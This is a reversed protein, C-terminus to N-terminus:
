CNDLWENFGSPDIIGFGEFFRKGAYEPNHSPIVHKRFAARYDEATNLKLSLNKSRKYALLLAACAVVFPCAMSTGSLFSYWNDPVTSIIRVGPALFDLDDGTCSFSARDFNQDIAGVGITEPYNAPYFIARTKGANGAAVFTVVGKSEAYQIAKRIQQLPKPSGLSMCLFDAGAEDVAWRIGQSVHNFDGQGNEDLVKVPIIKAQPAVGVVGIENNRAAIIGSVHTGHCHDDDPPLNPNVFNKGPLLNDILDPHDLDCGSDLVAIKVGEGQTLGWTKPLNFATIEWGANQQVEQMSLVDERVFPLLKCPHKIDKKKM